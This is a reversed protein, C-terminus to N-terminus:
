GGRRCGCRDSCGCLSNDHRGDPGRCNMGTCVKADPIAAEVAAVVLVVGFLVGVAVLVGAGNGGGSGLNLSGMSWSGGDRSAIEDSCRSACGPGAALAAALFGAVVRPGRRRAGSSGM